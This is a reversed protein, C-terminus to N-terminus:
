SREAGVCPGVGPAIGYESRVEMILDALEENLLSKYTPISILGNSDVSSDRIFELLFVSNAFVNQAQGELEIGRGIQALRSAEGGITALNEETVELEVLASNQVDDLWGCLLILDQNQLGTSEDDDGCAALLLASLVAACVMLAAKLAFTHRLGVAEV